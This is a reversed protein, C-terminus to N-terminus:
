IAHEVEVSGCTSEVEGSGWLNGTSFLSEQFTPLLCIPIRDLGVQNGENKEQLVVTTEDSGTLEKELGNEENCGFCHIYFM